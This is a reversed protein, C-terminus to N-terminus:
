PLAPKSDGHRHLQLSAGHASIQDLPANAMHKSLRPSVERLRQIKYNHRASINLGTFNGIISSLDKPRELGM